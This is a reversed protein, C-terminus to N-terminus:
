RVHSASGAGSASSEAAERGNRQASMESSRRGNVHDLVITMRSSIAAGADPFTSRDARGGGSAHAPRVSAVTWAAACGWRASRRPCRTRTSFTGSTRTSRCSKEVRRPNSERMASRRAREGPWSANVNSCIKGAASAPPGRPPPWPPRLRARPVDISRRTGRGQRWDLAPEELLTQRFRVV